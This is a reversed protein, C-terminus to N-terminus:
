PSAAPRVWDIAEVFVGWFSGSGTVSITDGARWSPPASFGCIKHNTEHVSIMPRCGRSGLDSFTSFTYELTMPAAVLATLLMPFGIVLAQIVLFASTAPVGTALFLSYAKERWSMARGADLRRDQRMMHVFVAFTAAATVIGASWAYPTSMQIWAPSPIYQAIYLFSLATPLLAVAIVFLFVKSAWVKAFPIQQKPRSGKKSPKQPQANM